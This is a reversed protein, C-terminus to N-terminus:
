RGDPPGAPADTHAVPAPTATLAGQAAAADPQRQGPIAAAASAASDEAATAARL